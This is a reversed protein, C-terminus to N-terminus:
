IMHIRRQSFPAEDLIILTKSHRSQARPWGPNHWHNTTSFPHSQFNQAEAPHVTHIFLDHWTQCWRQHHLLIRCTKTEEIGYASKQKGHNITLQRHKSTFIKNKKKPMGGLLGHHIGRQFNRGNRLNAMAAAVKIIFITDFPGNKHQTIVGLSWPKKSIHQFKMESNFLRHIQGNKYLYLFSKQAFGRPSDNTFPDVTRLFRPM